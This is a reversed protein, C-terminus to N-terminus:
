SLFILAEAGSQRAMKTHIGAYAVLAAALLTASVQVLTVALAPVGMLTLSSTPTVSVQGLAVMATRVNAAQAPVGLTIFDIWTQVGNLAISVAIIGAVGAAAAFLVRWRRSVVLLVPFLLVLQPKVSLCSLLLGARVPYRDMARFIWLLAAAFFLSIQGVVVTQLVVPAFLISAARWPWGRRFVTLYLAILGFLTWLALALPYSLLGFPAALLLFPPPYSWIHEVQNAPFIAQVAREYVAQDYFRGPDPKWFAQGYLWTNLFDRGVVVDHSDLLFPAAGHLGALYPGLTGACIIACIVGFRRYTAQDEMLIGAPRAPVISYSVASV